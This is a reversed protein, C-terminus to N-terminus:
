DRVYYDFKFGIFYMWRRDDWLGNIVGGNDNGVGIPFRILVVVTM